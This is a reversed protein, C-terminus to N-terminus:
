ATTSRLVPCRKLEVSSSTPMSSHRSAVSAGLKYRVKRSKNWLRVFRKLEADTYPELEADYDDLQCQLEEAYGLEPEQLDERILMPHLEKRLRRRELVIFGRQIEAATARELESRKDKQRAERERRYVGADIKKLNENVRRIQERERDSVQRNGFVSM